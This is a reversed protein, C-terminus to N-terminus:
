LTGAKCLTGVAFMTTKWWVTQISVGKMDDGIYVNDGSLMPFYSSLDADVGVGDFARLFRLCNLYINFFKRKVNRVRGTM